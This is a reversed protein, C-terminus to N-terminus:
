NTTENKRWFDVFGEPCQWTTKNKNSGNVKYWSIEKTEPNVAVGWVLGVKGASAPAYWHGKEYNWIKVKVDVPILTNKYKIIM